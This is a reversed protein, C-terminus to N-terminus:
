SGSVMLGTGIQLPCKKKRVLFGSVLELEGRSDM